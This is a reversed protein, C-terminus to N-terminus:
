PAEPNAPPTAQLEPFKAPDYRLHISKLDPGLDAVDVPDGECLMLIGHDKSFDEHFLRLAFFESPQSSDSNKPPRKLFSAEIEQVVFIVRHDKLLEDALEDHSILGTKSLVKQARESLSTGTQVATELGIAIPTLSSPFVKRFRQWLPLNTVLALQLRKAVGEPNATFAVLDRRKRLDDLVGLEQRTPTVSSQLTGLLYRLMQVVSAGSLNRFLKTASPRSVDSLQWFLEVRYFRLLRQRIPGFALLVSSFDLNWRSKRLVWKRLHKSFPFALLLLNIVIKFVLFVPIPLALLSVLPLPWYYFTQTKSTNGLSDRLQLSVKQPILLSLNFHQFGVPSSPHCPETATRSTRGPQLFSAPSTTIEFFECDSGPHGLGAPAPIKKGDRLYGTKKLDLKLTSGYVLKHDKAIEHSVTEFHLSSERDMRFLGSRGWFWIDKGTDVLDAIKLARNEELVGLLPSLSYSNTSSRKELLYPGLETRLWVRGDKLPKIDLVPGGSIQAPNVVTDFRPGHDTERVKLVNGDHTGLWAGDDIGSVVLIGNESDLLSDFVSFESLSAQMGSDKPIAYVEGPRSTGHASSLTWIWLHNGIERLGAVTNPLTHEIITQGDLSRAKLFRTGGIWLQRNFPALAMVAETGSPGAPKDELDYCQYGPSHTACILSGFSALGFSTKPTTQQWSIPSGEDPIQTWYLGNEAAVWLRPGLRRFSHVKGPRTGVAPEGPFLDDARGLDKTGQAYEEPLDVFSAGELTQLKSSTALYVRDDVAIGVPSSDFTGQVPILLEGHAQACLAALVWVLPTCRLFASKKM